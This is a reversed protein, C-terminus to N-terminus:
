LVEKVGVRFIAQHDYKSFGILMQSSLVIDLQVGALGPRLIRLMSWHMRGADASSVCKVQEFLKQYDRKIEGEKTKEEKKISSFKKIHDFKFALFSVRANINQRDEVRMMKKLHWMLLRLLLQDRSSKASVGREQQESTYWGEKEMIGMLRQYRGKDVPTIGEKMGVKSTPDTPTDIPKCGLMGTEKLLDLTYIQQSICIGKNSRAVEMGLFYKLKELDRIEFEKALITKLRNMEEYDDGSLQHISKLNISCTRFFNWNSRALSLMELYQNRRLLPLMVVTKLNLNGQNGILTNAM